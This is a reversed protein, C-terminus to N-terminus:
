IESSITNSSTHGKGDVSHPVNGDYKLVKKFVNRCSFDGLFKFFDLFFDGLFLSSSSGAISGAAIFSSLSRLDLSPHLQLSGAGAFRTRDLM